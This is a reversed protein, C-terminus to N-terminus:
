GPLYLLNLSEYDATPQQNPQTLNNRVLREDADPKLKATKQSGVKLVTRCDFFTLVDYIQLARTHGLVGM